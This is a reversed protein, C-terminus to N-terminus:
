HKNKQLIYVKMIVKSVISSPEFAVRTIEEDEDPAYTTLECTTLVGGEEARVDAEM